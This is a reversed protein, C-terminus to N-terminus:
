SGVMTNQNGRHCVNAWNKMDRAEYENRDAAVSINWVTALALKRM